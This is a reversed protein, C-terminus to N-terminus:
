ETWNRLSLYPVIVLSAFFAANVLIALYAGIVVFADEELLAIAMLLLVIAPFFNSFPVPLPLSLIVAHFIIIVAHARRLALSEFLKRGRPRIAREMKRVLRELARCVRLLSDKEFRVNAVRKPLWPPREVLMFYGVLAISIGLATSIGPIPIPQLFPIILFLILFVHGKPGFLEILERMTLAQRVEAEHRVVSILTSLSRKEDTSFSSNLAM